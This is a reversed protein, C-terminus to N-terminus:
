EWDLIIISFQSDIATGATNFMTVTLQTTSPNNVNAYGSTGRLTPIAIFNATAGIAPYTFTCQGTAARAVSWGSPFNLPGVLNCTTGNDNVEFAYIQGKTLPGFSNLVPIYDGGASSGACPLVNAVVNTNGIQVCGNGSADLSLGENSANSTFILAQTGANNEFLSLNHGTGSSVTLQTAGNQTIAVKSATINGTAAYSAATSAGTIAESAATLAGFIPNFPLGGVGSARAELFGVFVVFLLTSVITKFIKM